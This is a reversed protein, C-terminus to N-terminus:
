SSQAAILTTVRAQFFLTGAKCFRGNILTDTKMFQLRGRRQMTGEIEQPRPMKHCTINTTLHNESEGQDFLTLSCVASFPFYLKNDNEGKCLMIFISTYSDSRTVHGRLELCLRLKYGAHSTFFPPSLLPGTFDRSCIQIKWHLQGNCNLSQALSLEDKLHSVEECYESVKREAEVNQCRLRTCTEQLDQLLSAQDQFCEMQATYHDLLLDLHLGQSEQVHLQVDCRSVQAHCGIEGFKCPVMSKPCDGDKHATHKPMDERLIDTKGCLPCEIAYRPCLLLQHQILSKFSISQQCYTCEVMRLPCNRLHEETEMRKHHSLCGNSCQIMAHPCGSTHDELMRLEGKWDCGHDVNCCLVHLSLVERKMAVDEFVEFQVDFWLKDLPCKAIDGPGSARKLCTKCFRHGCKTQVPDRLACLCVPCVYKKDLHCEFRAEYGCIVMADASSRVGSTAESIM